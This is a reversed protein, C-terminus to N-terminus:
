KGGHVEVATAPLERVYTFDDPPSWGNKFAWEENANLSDRYTAVYPKVLRKGSKFSGNIAYEALEWEEKVYEVYPDNLGDDTIERRYRIM